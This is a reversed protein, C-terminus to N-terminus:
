TPSSGQSATFEATVVEGIGSIKPQAHFVQKALEDLAGHLLVSWKSGLDHHVSITYVNGQRRVETQVYPLYRSRMSLFDLVKEPSGDNYFFVAMDRWLPTLVTRGVQLLAQDDMRGLIDRFLPHSVPVFGFKEAKSEWELYKHGLQAMLANLSLGKDQAEKELGAILEVPLRFTRLGTRRGTRANSEM